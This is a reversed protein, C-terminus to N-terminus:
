RPANGARAITGRLSAIEAQMADAAAARERAEQEARAMTGRLSAIVGQMADVSADRTALVVQTSHLTEALDDARRSAEALAAEREALVSKNCAMEARVADLVATLDDREKEIVGIYSRLAESEAVSGARQEEAASARGNAADIMADRESLAARLAAADQEIQALTAAVTAANEFARQLPRHFQQFGIFQSVVLQIQERATPDSSARRALKYFSRALPQDAERRHSDDHRLTRDVIDSIALDLDLQSQDWRLELFRLLKVLNASPEDFWTEYEVTCTDYGNTYRFFDVVYSFWRYESADTDLADRATLSRAVQAPNRLCFVIKPVLKLEKIIQHWIPLLRVTRPDKFGFLGKGMRRELFGIIERRVEAVRPDAWWAIPLPLDHFPTFYRRNFFSLIRDHFEVIEWREWHGRPNDQGPATMGQASVTDAMDVGLMSLIHSCRSTGSRHMGLLLVLPRHSAVGEIDAVHSGKPIKDALSNSTVVSDNMACLGRILTDDLREAGARAVLQVATRRSLFRRTPM